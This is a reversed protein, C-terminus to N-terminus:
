EFLKRLQELAMFRVTNLPAQRSWTALLGKYLALPGETRVTTVFCDVVGSYPYAGGPGTRGMNQLRTKVVDFPNSAVSAAGGALLSAAAHTTPTDSMGASSTLALKAADYVSMQAATVVCARAM